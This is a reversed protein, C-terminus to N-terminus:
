GSGDEPIKLVGHCRKYKRGSGCACVDSARQNNLLMRRVIDMHELIPLIEVAPINVAGHQYAREGRTLVRTRLEALRIYNHVLLDDRIALRVNDIHKGEYRRSDDPLFLIEVAGEPSSTVEHLVGDADRWVSHFEAEIYVHPWEWLLWGYQISGGDRDM